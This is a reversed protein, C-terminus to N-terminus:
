RAKLIKEAIMQGIPIASTAAPSPANCVHVMRPTEAFLFDHVLTGDRMVAQARIGAEYPLLDAVELSPCYKRCQELYGRKFLSNKMETTGSGLNNWITKWFGPFSAYEAVDRWNVSFKRYNERGFALVANPGVTVSGDIMRTLHVGLFPLEPDPIPYILHNVIQNKSAPLRYYEGRFPIIQHDIKVGALRALRDSQLGACAVLQRARWTHSDTGIAVHDAHEQIARVSTSLHVEGGAQRIVKAMANCVQTYDVIGTADLFLAGKGVINPEREALAAADLREVKLGNQQSREYLAQMRQVELDNSAVLLKGCVEFAIGHESCFDKTAQAGRKCLEAKLSGPAYYIGAHIVGSNHGTQHRGLSAEKELILLSAGPRQELLAMATALGVIGGGIICYDYTM